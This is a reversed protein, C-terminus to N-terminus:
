VARWVKAVVGSNGQRRLGSDHILGLERLEGVRGCVSCLRITLAASIEENTAGSEVRARIFALVKLRLGPARPAIAAAGAAQTDEGRRAPPAIDWLALGTHSM